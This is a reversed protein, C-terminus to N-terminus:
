SLSQRLRRQRNREHYARCKRCTRGGDSRQYTNEPTFEHQNSCHTKQAEYHRGNRVQDRINASKTDWRLNSLLNNEGDDDLHCCELGAPRPGVFAELVLHHVFVRKRQNRNSLTVANYTRGNRTVVTFVRLMRARVPRQIVEGTWHNTMPVVRELSRVRGSDSVEYLGEYGAVPLWKEAM